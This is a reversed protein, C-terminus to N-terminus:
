GHSRVERLTDPRGTSYAHAPRYRIKELHANPSTPFVPVGPGCSLYIEELTRAHEEVCFQFASARAQNSIQEVLGPNDYLKKLWYRWRHPEDYGVLFGTAKHAVAWSYQPANSLVAPIGLAAFEEARIASKALTFPSRVLPGIGVTMKHLSRYYDPVSPQWPIYDIRDEFPGGGKLAQPQGFFLLRADKCRSMFHFLEEQILDLDSQHVSQPAGQYGVTFKDPISRPIDLVFRPVYNPVVYVPPGDPVVTAIKRALYESPTTVVHSLKINNAVQAQRDENWYKQQETGVPWKWIDDDIDFVLRHQGEAALYQWALSETDGHLIHTVITDHTTVVREDFIEGWDCTHGRLMLSQLPLRIRYWHCAGNMPALGYINM